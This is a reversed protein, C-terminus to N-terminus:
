VAARLHREILAALKDATQLEEYALSGRRWTDLTTVFVGAATGMIMTGIVLALLLEVLTFGARGTPAINRCASM